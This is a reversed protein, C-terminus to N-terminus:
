RYWVKITRQVRSKTVAWIENISIRGRCQKIVAAEKRPAGKPRISGNANLSLDHFNERKNIRKLRIARPLSPFM